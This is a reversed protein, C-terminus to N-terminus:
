FLVAFVFASFVRIFLSSYFNFCIAAIPNKLVQCGLLKHFNMKARQLM